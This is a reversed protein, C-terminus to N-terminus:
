PLSIKHQYSALTTQIGKELDYEPEWGLERKAEQYDFLLHKIEEHREHKYMTTLNRGSANQIVQLLQHTSTSIGSSINLTTQSGKKIALLNARAVDEVFVFDRTQEGDGYVPCAQNKALKDLFVNVVGPNPKVHERPGYVHSYRLITYNLQHVNALHKLYLENTLKSIGETTHPDTMHKSDIPLYRPEGYIEGSSAFILKKVRYKAAIRIVNISGLFHDETYGIRDPRVPDAQHIIFDPRTAFIVQEFSRSSIDCNFFTVQNYQVNMLQGSSLNDVVVVQYGENLLKDVIHSGIFGCGGTVMVKTM